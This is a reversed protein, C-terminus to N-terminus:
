ARHQPRELYAAVKAFRVLATYTAKTSVITSMECPWAHGARHVALELHARHEAHIPCDFLVHSVDEDGTGCECRPSEKLGFGALKSRFHGHGSLFQTIEHGLAIPLSLRQRVDPFCRHTWRGKQSGTWREQWNDLILEAAAKMTASRPGDPLLKAEDKVSMLRLELDLPLVGAIVQLAETSTTRYAGTVGLLARRQLSGLKAITAKSRIAHAWFRIGYAVKPLFVGKYLIMSTSSKTGWGSGMTGRLRSFLTHETSLLKGVHHRFTKEDDLWIGLYKVCGVTVIRENGFALTFGAALRGKTMMAQSKPASFKLGRLDAWVLAPELAEEARQILSARTEAAISIAIDDAYAQISVHDPYDTRLLAETTVNWLTPGLISGQPCGKTLNVEKSVGGIIMTAKRGSLYDAVWLRMHTSVGLDELDQQLAPWALNDFAGSIDLFVTVTYKEPRLACWTTLNEIADLTSRGKTFGYQLGTLNRETQEQLRLNMTKEIIKGLVPLLSVPRYSKPLSSDRDEGKLIPVVTATKWQSPFRAEQICQNTLDLLRHSLNPWLARIMTGTIGDEGPARNPSITWVLQRLQPETIPQLDCRTREPVGLVPLRPNNPILTNLLLDLSEDITDCKSGDPRMLLGLSIHRKGGDRLWRYLKGWPQKGEETCFTRWSNRKNKRLLATYANRRQNFVLREGTSVMVRAAVRVAKRAENLENSWWPPKVRKRRRSRPAHVLAAATVDEIIGRAAQNQGIIIHTVFFIEEVFFTFGIIDIISVM